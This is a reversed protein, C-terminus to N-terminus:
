HIIYYCYSISLIIVIVLPYYLLLMSEQTEARKRSVIGPTPDIVFDELTKIIHTGVMPLQGFARKDLIKINLPPAYREEKPM